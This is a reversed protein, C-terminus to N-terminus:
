RRGAERGHNFAEALAVRLAERQVPSLTPWPDGSGASWGILAGHAALEAAEFEEPYIKHWDRAIRDAPDTM